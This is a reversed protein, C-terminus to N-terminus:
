SMAIKNLEIGIYVIQWFSDMQGPHKEQLVFSVPM